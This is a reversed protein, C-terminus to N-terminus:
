SDFFFQPPDMPAPNPYNWASPMSTPVNKFNKKVIGYGKPALGIGITYFQEQAIQLIQKMLDNQKAADGTAKMQDYLAQQKKPAEPPEVGRADKIWYYYWGVGFQSEGSYPMYWRPEMVCDLGGDGGWCYMEGENADKHTYMLARDEVKAQIDLGVAKWYKQLMPGAETWEKTNNAIEFNVSLRKGDPMLRFGDSDKKPLVKDLYENAKAVDFETYQKALKENYFPSTPRPAGQYPESQSVWLVDIMEKRNIAYSAGIRFNIDNFIKNKQPDKVTLNFNIMMVNMSAPIEDFFGINAKAANDVFITKNALTNLSRDMMDIEGAAGKLAMVQIDEIFDYFINDIYPLQNGETDVKWYYPNRVAKVPDKALYPATIVWASLVPLELNSWRTDMSSGPPTQVKTQFLQIWTEVKAEKILADLKAPDAYTKHFQKCYEAQFRVMDPGNTDSAIQQMFLGQPVSFKIVVTYDDVKTATLPKGGATYQVGPAATLEKNNLVDTAWFVVDTATFPKGDSWKVGKRLKFTYESADASASWSEALGPVIETWERNWRVLYDYGITRTLWANDGAGKLATRWTGGYKGIKEIPKLVLPSDPLRKDVAPLKGAKVLEALMPAEKYKSAPAATAAPPQTAAPATTPAPTATTTPACAALATAAALGGGIKLFERRTLRARITM